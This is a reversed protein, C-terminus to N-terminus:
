FYFNKYIYAKLMELSFIYANAIKLYVLIISVTLIIFKVLLFSQHLHNAPFVCSQSCDTQYSDNKYEKQRTRDRTLLSAALRCNPVISENKTISMRINDFRAKGKFAAM